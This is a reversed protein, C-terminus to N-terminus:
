ARRIKHALGYIHILVALMTFSLCAGLLVDIVLFEDISPVSLSKVYLLPGMAVLGAIMGCTQVWQAKRSVNACYPMTLGMSVQLLGFVSLHGHSAVSLQHGWSHILDPNKLIASAMDNAMFPGMCAGLFVGIFGILLNTLAIRSM